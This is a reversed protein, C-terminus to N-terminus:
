LDVRFTRAAEEPSYRHATDVDYFTTVGDDGSAERIHMKSVVVGQGEFAIETVVRLLAPALPTLVLRWRAGRKDGDDAHFGVAFTRELAARDGALVDLFSEVLARVVPSSGVDIQQVGTADGFRLASGDLLVHSPSPTRTHRAIKQPPAYHVTGESVIPAALLAIRKEERYRAWLGPIARFRGLLADLTLVSEGAADAAAGRAVRGPVGAAGVSLAV